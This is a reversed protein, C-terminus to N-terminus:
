SHETSFRLLWLAIMVNHTIALLLMDRCQSWYSRGAVAHDLNRKIMSFVTEVQWRQGFKIRRRNAQTFMKQMHRRHKGAAPKTSPRGHRPPIYSKIACTERLHDHNSESDYGADLLLRAIRWRAAMQGLLPLLQHVDPTPGRTPWAALILHTRCDAVIALKPFKTYRTTQYHPNGKNKQGRARRRVFYPSIRGSEFGSSDGAARAIVCRQGLVFRASQGLMSRVLDFRLLRRQAKQLTTFHPVRKLQLDDCLTPNDKLWAITTRYDTAWFAKLILCALLQAQTYTQPAYKHAFPNLSREGVAM